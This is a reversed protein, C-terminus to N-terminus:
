DSEVEWLVEELNGVWKGYGYKPKTIRKMTSGIRFRLHNFVFTSEKVTKGEKTIYEPDYNYLAVCVETRLYQRIDNLSMGTNGLSVDGNGKGHAENFNKVVSDQIHKEVMAEYRLIDENTIKRDKNKM